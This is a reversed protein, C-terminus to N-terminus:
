MSSRRCCFARQGHGVQAVVREIDAAPRAVGHRAAQGKGRGAEAQAPQDQDQAHQDVLADAAQRERDESSFVGGGPEAPPRSFAITPLMM